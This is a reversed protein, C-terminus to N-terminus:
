GRHGEFALSRFADEPADPKSTFAPVATFERPFLVCADILL